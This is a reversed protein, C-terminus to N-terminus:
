RPMKAMKDLYHRIIHGQDIDHNDDQSSETYNHSKILKRLKLM